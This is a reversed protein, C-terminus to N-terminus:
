IIIEEEVLEYRIRSAGRVKRKALGCLYIKNGCALWEVAHNSALIKNKRNVMDGRVCAQVLATEKKGSNMIIIDAFGFLDKRFPRGPANIFKEVVEATYGRLRYHKLVSETPSM